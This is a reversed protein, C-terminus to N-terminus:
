VADRPLLAVLKGYLRTRAAPDKPRVWDFGLARWDPDDPEVGLSEIYFRDVVLYHRQYALLYGDCAKRVEAAEEYGKYWRNVHGGARKPYLMTGFDEVPSDGTLASKAQPWNAFGLEAAIVALCHTRQITASVLGEDAARRFEPLARLRRIATLDGTQIRRHLIEARTKLESIPDMM